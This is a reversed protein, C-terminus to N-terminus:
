SSVIVKVPASPISLIEEGGLKRVAVVSYFYTTGPTLNSENHNFTTSSYFGIPIYQGNESTSRYVIYEDINSVAQWRVLVHGHANSVATVDAPTNPTDARWRAVLTENQEIVYPPEVKRSTPQSISNGVGNNPIGALHKLIELADAIGPRNATKSAPTILSANWPRSGQGGQTIVNNSIGALFKLLELVDTITARGSDHSSQLIHGPLFDPAATEIYWGM